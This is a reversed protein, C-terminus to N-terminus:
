CVTCLPERKEVDDGFSPQENNTTAMRAPTLHYRTTTNIQMERIIKKMHRNAM